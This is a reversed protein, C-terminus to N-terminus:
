FVKTNEPKNCRNVDPYFFRCNGIIMCGGAVLNLALKRSFDKQSKIVGVAISVFVILIVVIITISIQKIM